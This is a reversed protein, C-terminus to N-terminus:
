FGLFPCSSNLFFYHVMELLSVPCPKWCWWWFWVYLFSAWLWSCCFFFGEIRERELQQYKPPPNKLLFLSLSSSVFHTTFNKPLKSLCLEEGFGKKWTMIWCLLFKCLCGKRGKVSFYFQLKTKETLQFHFKKLPFLSPPWHCILVSIIRIYERM